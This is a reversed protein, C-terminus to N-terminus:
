SVQTSTPDRVVPFQLWPETIEKYVVECDNQSLTQSIWYLLKWNLYLDKLVDLKSGRERIARTHQKPWGSPSPFVQAARSALSVVSKFDGMEWLTEAYKVFILPHEAHQALQHDFYEQATRFQGLRALRSYEELEDDLDPELDWELHHITVTDNNGAESSRYIHISPDWVAPKKDKKKNRVAEPYAEYESRQQGPIKPKGVEARLSDDRKEKFAQSPISAHRERMLQKPNPRQDWLRDM